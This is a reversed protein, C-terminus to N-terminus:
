ARVCKSIEVTLPETAAYSDGEVFKVFTLAAAPMRTCYKIAAVFMLVVLLM